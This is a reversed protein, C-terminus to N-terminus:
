HPPNRYNSGKWDEYRYNARLAGGFDLGALNDASRWGIHPFPKGDDALALGSTVAALLLSLLIKRM